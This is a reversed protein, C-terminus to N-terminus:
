APSGGFTWLRTSGVGIQPTTSTFQRLNNM